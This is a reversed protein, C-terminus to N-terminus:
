IEHGDILLQKLKKYDEELINIFKLGLQYGEWNEEWQIDKWVVEALVEFNAFQYEKPFMVAINLKTGVPIEKVSYVLLGSESANIVLAGLGNPASTVRYEVPLDMSFRPYKRRERAHNLGEM